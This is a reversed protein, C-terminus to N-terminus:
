VETQLLGYMTSGAYFLIGCSWGCRLFLSFASCKEEIGSFQQQPIHLNTEAHVKTMVEFYTLRRQHSVTAICSINV